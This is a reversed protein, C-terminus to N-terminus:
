NDDGGMGMFNGESDTGDCSGQGNHITGETMPLMTAPNMCATFHIKRGDAYDRDCSANKCFTRSKTTHASGAPFKGVPKGSSRRPPSAKAITSMLADLVKGVCYAEGDGPHSRILEIDKSKTFLHTATDSPTITASPHKTEVVRAHATCYGVPRSPEGDGALDFVGSDTNIDIYFRSDPYRSSYDNTVHKSIFDSENPITSTARAVYSFTGGIAVSSFSALLGCIMHVCIARSRKNHKNVFGGQTAFIFHSIPPLESGFRGSRECRQPSRDPQWKKM